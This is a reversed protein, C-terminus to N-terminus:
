PDLDYYSLDPYQLNAVIGGAPAGVRVAVLYLEFQGVATVEYSKWSADLIPITCNPFVGGGQAFIITVYSATNATAASASIAMFKFSLLKSAFLSTPATSESAPGMDVFDNLITQISRNGGQKIVASQTWGSSSKQYLWYATDVPKGATLATDWDPQAIYEKSARDLVRVHCSIANGIPPFFTKNSFSGQYNISGITLMPNYSSNFTTFGNVSVGYRGHGATNDITGNGIRASCTSGNTVFSLTIGAAFGREPGGNAAITSYNSLAYGDLQMGVPCFTDNAIAALGVNRIMTGHMAFGYPVDALTAAGPNLVWHAGDYHYDTALTIGNDGAGDILGGNVTVESGSEISLAELGAYAPLCVSVGAVQPPTTVTFTTYAGNPAIIYSVGDVYVPVRNLQLGYHAATRSTTFSFSTQNLTSTICSGYDPAYRYMDSITGKSWRAQICFAYDQLCSDGKSVFGQVAQFYLVYSAAAGDTEDFINAESLAGQMVPSGALATDGIFSLYANGSPVAGHFRVHSVVPQYIGGVAQVVQGGNNSKIDLNSVKAGSGTLNVGITQSAGILLKGSYPGADGFLQQGAALTIGTHSSPNVMCGLTVGSPVIAIGFRTLSANIAASDDVVGNCAAGFGRIDPIPAFFGGSALAVGLVAGLPALRKLLERM